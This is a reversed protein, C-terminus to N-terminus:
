RDATAPDAAAAPRTAPASITGTLTDIEELNDIMAGIPDGSEEGPPPAPREPLHALDDFQRADESKLPLHRRALREIREPSDLRAWEARLMAIADREHRIQMRLKAVREAQVTSDFKIRYVYGAAVVLAVIVILNLLRM